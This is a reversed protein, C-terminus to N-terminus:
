PLKMVKRLLTGRARVSLLKTAIAGVKASGDVLYRERPDHSFLSDRVARAIVSPDLASQEQDALGRRMPELIAGYHRQQEPSSQQELRELSTRGKEWIRTRVNGFEFLSVNVGSKCSALEFSLVDTLAGLAAKSSAYPGILPPTIRGSISGIFILRGKTERLLPLAAQAVALAGFLNVEFQYRFRDLPVFELPGGLAVGANCVAAWLPVSNGRIRAIASAIDDPKTVDLIIPHMREGLSALSSADADKRVGAYVIFGSQLLEQAIAHGIGSSAGTVLVARPTAETTKTGAAM